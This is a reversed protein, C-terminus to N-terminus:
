AIRVITWSISPGSTTISQIFLSTAGVVFGEVKLTVPSASTAKYIGSLEAQQLLSSPSAMDFTDIVTTGDTLRMAFASSATCDAGLNLEVKYVANAVPTFTIGPLDGAASTVVGFEGNIRETLVIPTTPTFDAFTSSTTSWYGSGGNTPQHYGSWYQTQEALGQIRVPKNAM